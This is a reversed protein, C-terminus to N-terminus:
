GTISGSLCLLPHTHLLHKSTSVPSCVHYFSSYYLSIRLVSSTTQDVIVDLVDTRVGIVDSRIEVVETSVELVDADGPSTGSDQSRVGSRNISRVTSGASGKTSPTRTNTSTSLPSELVNGKGGLAFGRYLNNLLTLNNLTTNHPTTHHPTTHHPTTHHLASHQLSLIHSCHRQKLTIIIM